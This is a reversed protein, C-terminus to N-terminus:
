ALSGFADGVHFGLLVPEAQFGGRTYVRKLAPKFPQEFNVGMRGVLSIENWSGLPSCRQPATDGSERLEICRAGM